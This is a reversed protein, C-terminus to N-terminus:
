KFEDGKLTLFITIMYERPIKSQASTGDPFYRLLEPFRKTFPWIDRRRLGPFHPIKSSHADKTLLADKEGKIVQKM